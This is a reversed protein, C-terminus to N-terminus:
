GSYKASIIEAAQAAQLGNALRLFTSDAVQWSLQGRDGYHSKKYQMCDMIVARAMCLEAALQHSGIRWYLM